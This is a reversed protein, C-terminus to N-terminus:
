YGRTRDVLGSVREGRELQAIKAAVQVASEAVLTRAAVHPTIRVRPHSWFRHQPPLPETRFVDLAAGGLHGSDLAALLDDEVVLGGRAVNILLAGAPLMALREANFFDATEPTLPALVILVRSRGLFERLRNPGSLCEVGPENRPSRSYGLVPFGFARLHRAVESGLVGIGFLGVTFSERPPPELTRWVGERQQAEYQACLRFARLVELVCHEAMQVGMGADELRVVPLSAPLGPHTMVFDVGAGTSFYAKLGTVASFFDDHPRWGLAYDARIAPTPTATDCLVVEVDMESELAKRWRERAWANAHTVVMRVTM